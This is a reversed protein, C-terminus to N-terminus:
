HRTRTLVLLLAGTLILLVMGIGNGAVGALALQWARRAPGEGNPDMAGARMRRLDRRAMEFVVLAIFWSFFGPILFFVSLLGCVLGATGLWLLVHSRHPM